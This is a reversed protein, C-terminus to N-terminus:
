LVKIRLNNKKLHLSPITENIEVTGYRDFDNMAKLSVTCHAKAAKHFQMMAPLDVGFFTDANVVFVNEETVLEM